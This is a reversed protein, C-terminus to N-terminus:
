RLMAAAAAPNKMMAAFKECRKPADEPLDDFGFMGAKM